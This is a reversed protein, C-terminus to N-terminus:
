MVCPDLTSDLWERHVDNAAFGEYEMAGVAAIALAVSGLSFDVSRIM